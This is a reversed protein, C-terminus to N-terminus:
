TVRTKKNKGLKCKVKVYKGTKASMPIATPIAGVKKLPNFRSTTNALLRQLAKNKSAIERVGATAKKRKRESLLKAVRKKTDTM